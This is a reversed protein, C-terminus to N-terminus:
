QGCIQGGDTDIKFCIGADNPLPLADIQCYGDCCNSDSNCASGQEECCEGFGQGSATIGLDGGCIISILGSGPCCEASTLCGATGEPFCCVGDSESGSCCNGSSGFGIPDCSQCDNTTGLWLHHANKFAHFM